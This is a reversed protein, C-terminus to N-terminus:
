WCEVRVTGAAVRVGLQPVVVVAAPVGNDVLGAPPRPRLAAEMRAVARATRPVGYRGAEGSPRKGRGASTQGVTAARAERALRDTAERVASRRQEGPVVVVVVVPRALLHRAQEVLVALSRPAGAGAVLEAPAGLRHVAEL